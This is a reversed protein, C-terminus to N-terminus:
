LADKAGSQANWHMRQEMKPTLADKAGNHANLADKAGNQANLADKAGNQANLEDKAGQANLADKAGNQANLADKVGNQYGVQPWCASVLTRWRVWCLLSNVCPCISESILWNIRITVWKQTYTDFAACQNRHSPKLM